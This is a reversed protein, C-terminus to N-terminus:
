LSIRDGDHLLSRGIGPNTDQFTTINGYGSDNARITLGVQGHADIYGNHVVTGGANNDVVRVNNGFPDDNSLTVYM